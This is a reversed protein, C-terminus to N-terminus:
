PQQYQVGQFEEGDEEVRRPYPIKIKEDRANKHSTTENRTIQELKGNNTYM